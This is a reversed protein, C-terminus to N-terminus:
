DECGALQRYYAWRVEWGVGTAARQRLEEAPIVRPERGIARVRWNAEALHELHIADLAAEPLTEAVTAIGHGQLLVVRHQGLTAALDAGLEPTTVLMAHPWMPPPEAVLEGEVHLVPLIPSEAISMVTALPQHTHVVAQVDPRMRYIATHIFREGPPPHRGALHNGDLDITAMDEPQIQDQARVQVSHRPKILVHETGPLRASPHGMYDVLHLRFLVRCVDALQRRLEAEVSMWM